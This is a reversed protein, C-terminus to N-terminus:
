GARVSFDRVAVVAKATSTSWSAAAPASAATSPSCTGSTSPGAAHQSECPPTWSVAELDGLYAPRSAILPALKKFEDSGRTIEVAAAADRPARDRPAVGLDPPLPRGRRETTLEVEYAEDASSTISTPSTSSPTATARPRDGRAPRRLAEQGAALTEARYYAYIRLVLARSPLRHDWDIVSLAGAYAHRFPPM